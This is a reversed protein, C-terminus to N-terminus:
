ELKVRKTPPQDFSLRENLLKKTRVFVKDKLKVLIDQLEQAQRFQEGDRGYQNEVLYLELHEFWQTVEEFVSKFKNFLEQTKEYVDKKLGYTVNLKKLIGLLQRFRTFNTENKELVQYLRTMPGNYWRQVNAQELVFELTNKSGKGGKFFGLPPLKNYKTCHKAVFKPKVYTPEPKTAALEPKTAALEPKTAALEPELKVYTLPAGMLSMVYFQGIWDKWEESSVFTHNWKAVFHQFHQLPTDVQQVIQVPAACEADCLLHAKGVWKAFDAHFSLVSGVHTILNYFDAKRKDTM